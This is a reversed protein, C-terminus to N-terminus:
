YAVDSDDLVISRLTYAFAQYIHLGLLKLVLRLADRMECLLMPRASKM